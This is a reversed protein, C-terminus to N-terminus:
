GMLDMITRAKNRMEENVKVLVLGVNPQGYFIISDVPAYIVAPLVLLDEEGSVIIRVPPTMKLGRRIATISEETIETAPNFMTLVTKVDGYPLNRKKRREISDVIQLSPNIGFKILKETSADGVTIVFANRSINRSVNEKTTESDKIVLGLPKILQGRLKEPLHV